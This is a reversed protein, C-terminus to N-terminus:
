RRKRGQRARLQARVARRPVLRGGVLLRVLHCHGVLKDAADDPLYVFMSRKKTIPKTFNEHMM